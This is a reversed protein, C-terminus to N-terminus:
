VARAFLSVNGECLLVLGSVVECVSLLLVIRHTSRVLSGAGSSRLAVSGELTLVATLSLFFLFFLFFGVGM